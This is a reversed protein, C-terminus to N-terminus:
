LLRGRDWDQALHMRDTGKWREGESVTYYQEGRLVWVKLVIEKKRIKNGLGM